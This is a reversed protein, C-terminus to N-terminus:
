GIARGHTTRHVPNCIHKTVQAVRIEEHLSVFVDNAGDAIRRQDFELAGLRGTAVMRPLASNIFGPWDTFSRGARCIIKSASSRPSSRGPPTTTSLVAPLVPMPSARTALARPYWVTITIGSVCFWSFLSVSR